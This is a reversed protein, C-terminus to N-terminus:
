YTFMYSVAHEIFCVCLEPVRHNFKRKTKENGEMEQEGGDGAIGEARGECGLPLLRTLSPCYGPSWSQSASFQAGM